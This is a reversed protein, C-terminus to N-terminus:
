FRCMNILVSAATNGTTKASMARGVVNQIQGALVLTAGTFVAPMVRGATTSTSAASTQGVLYGGVALVNNAGGDLSTTALTPGEVVVYFLDGVAAGSSPLFEDVVYAREADVDCYGDVEMEDKGAVAKCTVLRKPALAITASNRVVRVRVWRNSGYTRDQHVYERGELSVGITSDTTGYTAGRAFPLNEYVGSM